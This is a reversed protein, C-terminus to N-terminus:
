KTVFCVLFMGTYIFINSTNKCSGYVEKSLAFDFNCFVM